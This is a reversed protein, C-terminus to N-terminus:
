LTNISVWREPMKYEKPYNEPDSMVDVSGVLHCDETLVYLDGHKDLITQLEAILKNLKFHEYNSM